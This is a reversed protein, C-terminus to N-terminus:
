DPRWDPPFIMLGDDWAEGRREVSETNGTQLPHLCPFRDGTTGILRLQGMKNAIEGSAAVSSTEFDRSPSGGHPEMPREM